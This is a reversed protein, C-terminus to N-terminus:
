KPTSNNEQWLLNVHDHSLSRLQQHDEFGVNGPVDDAYLTGNPSFAFSTVPFYQGRLRETFIVSAVLKHPEIRRIGGGTGAYVSGGPGPKVVAYDGGAQRGFAIYHATGDPTVQWISWGGDEGGVDINGHRDIAIRGIGNLPGKARGSPVVARVAELRGTATLRLIQRGTSIYLQGTVPSLEIALPNDLVGRWKPTTGTSGLPASLAPTGSAILESTRPARGNGAITRIVGDRNIARIRGGDAVYLTGDSAFALDSVSSLRARV